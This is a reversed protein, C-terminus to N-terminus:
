DDSSWGCYVKSKSSSGGKGGGSIVPATANVAPESFKNSAFQTGDYTRELKIGFRAEDLQFRNPTLCVLKIKANVVTEIVCIMCGPFIM